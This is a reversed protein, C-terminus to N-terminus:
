THEAFSTCEFRIATQGQTPSVLELKGGHQRAIANCVSLVQLPEANVGDGDPPDLRDIRADPLELGPIKLEFGIKDGALAKIELEIRAGANATRTALSLLSTLVVLTPTGDVIAEPCPQISAIQLGTRAAIPEYLSLAEAVLTNLQRLESDPEPSTLYDVLKRVRQALREVQEEIRRANEAVTEAHPNFRILAARGAIVQLPTGLAHAIVSAVQSVAACREAFRMSDLLALQSDTDSSSYSIATM